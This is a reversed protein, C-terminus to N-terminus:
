QQELELFCMKSHLFCVRCHCGILIVYDHDCNTDGSAAAALLSERAMQLMSELNPAVPPLLSSTQASVIATQMVTADTTTESAVVVDRGVGAAHEMGGSSTAALAPTPTTPARAQREKHYRRQQRKKKQDLANGEGDEDEDEAESGGRAGGRKARDITPQPAIVSMAQLHPQVPQQPSVSVDGKGEVLDTYSLGKADRISPDAFKTVHRM